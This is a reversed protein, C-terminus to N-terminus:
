TDLNLGYKDAMEDIMKNIIKKNKKNPTRGNNRDTKLDEPSYYHAIIGTRKKDAITCMKEIWERRPLTELWEKPIANYGYYLGALGGTISAVPCTSDGLNVATLLADKMNDTRLLCWIAAEVSSVVYRNSQIEEEPIEAFSKLDSLRNYYRSEYEFKSNKEYYDFANQIGEQLNDLLSGKNDCIARTIFYYFGCGILCRKHRNTLSSVDHIIKIADETELRNVCVYLCIPLIRMLSENGKSKRSEQSCAIPKWTEQFDMIADYCLGRIPIEVGFPTYKEQGLWSLFKDMIDCLDIQGMENISDLEALTLSSVDTWSINPNKLYSNVEMEKVLGRKKIFEREMHQVPSGLTDGIIHGMIGDLWVNRTDLTEDKGKLLEKTM